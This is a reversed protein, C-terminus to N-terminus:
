RGDPLITFTQTEGSNGVFTLPFSIVASYDSDGITATGDATTVDVTFGGAVAVDLTATVTIAGGDEAGNENRL